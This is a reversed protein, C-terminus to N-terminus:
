LRSLDDIISNWERVAQELVERQDIQANVGRGALYGTLRSNIREYHKRLTDEGLQRTTRKDIERRRYRRSINLLDHALRQEDQRPYHEPISLRVM